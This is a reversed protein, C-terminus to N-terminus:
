FSTPTKKTTALRQSQRVNTKSFKHGLCMCGSGKKGSRAQDSGTAPDKAQGIEKPQGIELLVLLTNSITFYFFV